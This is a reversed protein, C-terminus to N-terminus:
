GPFEDILAKFNIAVCFSLLLYSENFFELLGNWKFVDLQYRAKKSFWSDKNCLVLKVTLYLVLQVLINITFFIIVSGLNSVIFLSGYGLEDARESIAEDKLDFILTLFEKFYLFDEFLDFQVIEFIVSYFITVTGPIRINILLLHCVISLSRM